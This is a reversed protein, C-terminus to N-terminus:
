TNLQAERFQTGPITDKEWLWANITKTSSVLRMWFYSPITPKQSITTSSELTRSTALEPMLLSLELLVLDALLLNFPTWSSLIM